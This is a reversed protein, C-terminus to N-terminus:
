TPTLLENEVSFPELMLRVAKVREFGNLGNERGVKELDQLCAKLVATETAASKLAEIDSAAIQRGLKESALGAFKDPQIGFIAVLSAKDSDGHVCAQSAWTINSMYVNEIREPSVYEGQALKLINKKRDIIKFRGQEDVTCIDGTRFWGDPTLAKKTEAADNFYAKFQTKSRILLEGRPSPKDSTLYELDPVDELCLEASPVCAGCNGVSSDGETQALAIAYTETLGYGQNLTNGFFTRLYDHLSADLPASGTIMVRCRDLGLAQKIKQGVVANNGPNSGVADKIAAGFRSYLRPVNVMNTPRLARFDDVLELMNGHYYGISSGAWLAAVEAVREFIHALPLYSCIIDERKFQIIVMACSAAAVANAHTLLVGKPFGTTGSTYNITVIDDAKPAHYPRPNTAGMDEVQDITYTKLGADKLPQLLGKSDRRNWGDRAATDLSIIMRLSPCRPAMDQLQQIHDSSCCIVNLGAHNIIYETADPGLTDYLSVTYYSQSICGLDVVQWEPRNMCWLGVGGKNSIGLQEHLM